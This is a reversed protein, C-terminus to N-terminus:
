RHPNRRDLSGDDWLNPFQVARYEHSPGRQKGEKIIRRV